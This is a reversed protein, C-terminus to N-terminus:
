WDMKFLKIMTIQWAGNVSAFRVNAQYLNAAAGEQVGLNFKAEFVNQVVQKVSLDSIDYGSKGQYQAKFDDLPLAARMERALMAYAADFNGSRLLNFFDQVVTQYGPWAAGPNKQPAAGSDGAAPVTTDKYHEEWADLRGDDTHQADANDAATERPPKPVPVGCGNDVRVLQFKGSDQARTFMWAVPEISDAYYKHFRIAFAGPTDGPVAPAFFPLFTRADPFARAITLPMDELIRHIAIERPLDRAAGTCATMTVRSALRRRVWATMTEPVRFVRDPAVAAFEAAASQHLMRSFAFAQECLPDPTLTEAAAYGPVPRNVTLWTIGNESFTEDGETTAAVCAGPALMELATDARPHAYLAAPKDWAARYYALPPDTEM